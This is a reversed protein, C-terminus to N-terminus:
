CGLDPLPPSSFRIAAVEHHGKFSSCSCFMVLESRGKPLDVLVENEPFRSAVEDLLNGVTTKRLEM